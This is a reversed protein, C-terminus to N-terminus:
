RRGDEWILAKGYDTVWYVSILSTIKAASYTEVNIKPFVKQIAKKLM